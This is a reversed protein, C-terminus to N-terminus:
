FDIPKYRSPINFTFDLPSALSSRSARYSLEATSEPDSFQLVVDNPFLQGELTEFNRYDARIMRKEAPDVAISQRIRYTQPDIWLSHEIPPENLSNLRRRTTTSIVMMDRDNAISFNDTTFHEFDNGTLIAQLMYFDLDTGLMDNLFRMDGIFYSSELRNVFKVTDPTVLLRAVEIGLFPTVSIFIAQNKQIRISGSVTYSTNNWLATGSFRTSYSNFNAHNAHMTRIALEPAGLLPEVAPTIDRRPKCAVLAGAIFLLVLITKTLRRNM